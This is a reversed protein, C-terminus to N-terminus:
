TNKNIINNIEPLSKNNLIHYAGSVIAKEKNYHNMSKQIKNLMRNKYVPNIEDSTRIQTFKNILNDVMGDLFNIMKNLKATEIMKLKEDNGCTDSINKLISVCSSKLDNNANPM